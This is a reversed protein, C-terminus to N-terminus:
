LYDDGGEVRAVHTVDKDGRGSLCVLLAGRERYEPAIRLIHAIAHASELAPIIGELDSMRHFADLAEDDTVSVYRARGIDKLYSHEPGVGPYDLGASISHAPSVQGDQDQLLYSMAGHLPWPCAAHLASVGRPFERVQLFFQAAFVGLSALSVEGAAISRWLPHGGFSRREAILAQLERVFASTPLAM